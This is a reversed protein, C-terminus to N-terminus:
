ITQFFSAIRDKIYQFIDSIVDPPEAISHTEPKTNSRQQDKRWQYPAQFTGTWIGRKDHRAQAEESRYDWYSVAWGQEVMWRNLNTEGLYCRALDRGYKDIDSTECRIPQGNIRNRLANRAERGCLYDRGAIQCNQAMEPADIGLLRIHVKNIVVTDGDIVYVSGTLSETTQRNDPLFVIITVLAFFILM